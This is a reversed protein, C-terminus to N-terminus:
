LFCNSSFKRVNERWSHFIAWFNGIENWIHTRRYTHTSQHTHTHTTANMILSMEMHAYCKILMGNLKVQRKANLIELIAFALLLSSHLLSLSLHWSISLSLPLSRSTTHAILANRNTLLSQAVTTDKCCSSPKSRCKKIFRSKMSFISLLSTSARLIGFYIRGIKPRM